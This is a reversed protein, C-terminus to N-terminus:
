ISDDTASDITVEFYSQHQEVNSWHASVETESLARAYIAVEDIVGSFTEWGGYINGITLPSSGGSVIPTDVAFQRAFRRTGDIYIAKVGSAADFTAVVHHTRGDTLEALTPRNAQGDLPMDLESYRGGINLGFSLVPQHPFQGEPNSGDFEHTGNIDNQFSLLVRRAGNEMRVIEDYNGEKGDWHSVFLAEVTIGTTFTFDDTSDISVQEGRENGFSLAGKGILGATRKVSGLLGHNQGQTDFAPGGQEDFNWYSVLGAPFHRPHGPLDRVFRDGQPALPLLEADPAPEVLLAEGAAVRSHPIATSNRTRGAVEATGSYVHLRTSGSQTAEVAFEGGRAAVAAMATQVVFQASGAPLHVVIRGYHLMGGRSSQPVFRAPGEIVVKAGGDFVIEALGENLRVEGAPLRTGDALPEAGAWRAASAGVLTAVFETARPPLAPAAAHADSGSNAVNASPLASQAPSQANAPTQAIAPPEVASSRWRLAAATIASSAIATVLLLWLPLQIRGLDAVGGAVSDPVLNGLFGLIPSRAPPAASTGATGADAMATDRPTSTSSYDWHLIGHVLLHDLYEERAAPDDRLRRELERIMEPEGNMEPEAHGDCIAALLEGLPLNKGFGNM